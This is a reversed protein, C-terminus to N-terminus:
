PITDYRISHGDRSTVRRSFSFYATANTRLWHLLVFGILMVNLALSLAVSWETLLESFTAPLTCIEDVTGTRAIHKRIIDEFDSVKCPNSPCKTLKVAERGGEPTWMFFELWQESDHSHVEFFLTTASPVATQNLAKPLQHFAYPWGLMLGMAYLLERHGHYSYYRIKSADNTHLATYINDLLTDPFGSAWYTIMRDTGYYREMLMQFQLQRLAQLDSTTLDKPLRPLGQEEDFVFADVVDKIGLVTDERGIFPYQEVSVGGCSTGLRDLVDRYYDMLEVARTAGYKELDRDRVAKCKTKPACFMMENEEKQYVVILPQKGYPQPGTGDPYLGYGMALASQACRPAADAHVYIEYKSPKFTSNTHSDSLSPSLLRKEHVYIQRIHKGLSEMQSMGASTLYAYPVNYFKMNDSQTPCLAEVSPNPARSGHRSLTM